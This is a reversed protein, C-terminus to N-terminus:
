AKPTLPTYYYVVTYSAPIAGINHLYTTSHAAFFIVAGPKATWTKGGCFVEVTGEKVIIVEEQQHRHLRTAAGKKVELRAVSMNESQTTTRKYLETIPEPTAKNWDYLQM